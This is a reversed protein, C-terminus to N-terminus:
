IIKPLSELNEVTVLVPEDAHLLQLLHATHQAGHEGLLLHVLEHGLGVLYSSETYSPIM